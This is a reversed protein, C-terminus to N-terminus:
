VIYTSAEKSDNPWVYPGLYDTIVGQGYDEQMEGETAGVL